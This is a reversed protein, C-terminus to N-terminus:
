QNEGSIIEFQAGDQEFPFLITYTAHVKQIVDHNNQLIYIQINSYISFHIFINLGFASVYKTSAHRGTTCIIFVIHTNSSNHNSPKSNMQCNVWTLFLSTFHHCNSKKSSFFSPVSFTSM